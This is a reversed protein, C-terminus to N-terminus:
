SYRLVSKKTASLATEVLNLNARYLADHRGMICHFPLALNKLIIMLYDTKYIKRKCIRDKFINERHIDLSLDTIAKEEWFM